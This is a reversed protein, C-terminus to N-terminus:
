WETQLNVITSNALIPQSLYDSVSSKYLTQLSRV